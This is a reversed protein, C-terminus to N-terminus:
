PVPAAMDRWAYTNDAAKSCGYWVDAVGVGGPQYYLAGRHNSDCTGKGTSDSLKAGYGPELLVQDGNTSLSLHNTYMQVFESQNTDTILTVPQRGRLKVGNGGYIGEISFLDNEGDNNVNTSFVIEGTPASSGQIPRVAESFCVSQSAATANTKWGTGCRTIAPSYQQAGPSAATTNSLTLRSALSTGINAAASYTMAAGMTLASTNSGGIVMTGSSALDLTNSTLTFNGLSAGAITCDTRRQGSNDVCSVGSGTFNLKYRQTLLSGEDLVRLPTDARSTTSCALVLLAVLLRM